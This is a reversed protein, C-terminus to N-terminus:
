SSPAQLGAKSRRPKRPPLQGNLRALRNQERKQKRALWEDYAQEVSINRERAIRYFRNMAKSSPGNVGTADRHQKNQAIILLVVVGIGILGVLFLM